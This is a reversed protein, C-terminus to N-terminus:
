RDLGASYSHVIHHNPRIVGVTQWREEHSFRILGRYRTRIVFVLRATEFEATNRKNDRNKAVSWTWRM